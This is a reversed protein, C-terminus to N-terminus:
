FLELLAFGEFGCFRTHSVIILMLLIFVRFLISFRVCVFIPRFYLCIGALTWFAPQFLRM